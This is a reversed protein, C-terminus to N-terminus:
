DLEAHPIGYAECCEWEINCGRSNIWDTTFYAIDATSLLEISKALAELPPIDRWEPHYSNVFEINDGIRKPCHRWIIAEEACARAFRIVNEPLNQMPQAIYVKIKQM